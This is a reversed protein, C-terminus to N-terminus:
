RHMSPIDFCGDCKGEGIKGKIKFMNGLQPVAQYLKEIDTSAGTLVNFFFIKCM